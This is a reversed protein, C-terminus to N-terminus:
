GGDSTEQNATREGVLSRNVGKITVVHTGNAHTTTHAIYASGNAVIFYDDEIVRSGLVVSDDPESVTVKVPGLSEGM